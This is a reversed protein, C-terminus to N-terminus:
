SWSALMVSLSPAAALGRRVEIRSDYAAAAAPDAGGDEEADVADSATAAPQLL